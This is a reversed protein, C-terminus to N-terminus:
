DEDRSQLGLNLGRLHAPIPSAGKMAPPPTAQVPSPRGPNGVTRLIELTQEPNAACELRALQEANPFGEYRLRRPGWIEVPIGRLESIRPMTQRYYMGLPRGQATTFVILDTEPLQVPKGETWITYSVARGQQTRMMGVPCIAGQAPDLHAEQARYAQLIDSQRLERQPQAMPHPDQLNAPLINPGVKQFITAFLRTAEDRFAEDIAEVLKPLLVQPSVLLRDAKPVAIFTNQGPFLDSWLEPLLLRAADLGDEYSSQYIGSPLRRFPHNKSKERLQELARELVDEEDLGWLVFWPAPMPRGGALIRLCLGEVCPKYYLGDREGQWLPVVEPLLDYQAEVWLGPLPQGAQHLEALADAWAERGEAEHHEFDPALDALGPLDRPVGRAELLAELSPLPAREARSFLRSFFAM